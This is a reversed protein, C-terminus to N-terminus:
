SFVYPHVNNTCKDVIFTPIITVICIRKWDREREWESECDRDEEWHLYHLSFLIIGCYYCMFTNFRDDETCICYLATFCGVGVGVLSKRHKQMSWMSFPKLDKYVLFTSLFIHWTHNSVLRVHFFVCCLMKNILEVSIHGMHILLQKRFRIDPQVVSFLCM